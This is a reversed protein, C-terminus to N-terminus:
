HKFNSESFLLVAMVAVFSSFSLYGYYTGPVKENFIIQYTFVALAIALLGLLMWVAPLTDKNIISLVIVSIATGWVIMDMM